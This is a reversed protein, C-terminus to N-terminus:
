VGERAIWAAISSLEDREANELVDRIANLKALKAGEMANRVEFEEIGRATLVPSRDGLTVPRPRTTRPRSTKAM